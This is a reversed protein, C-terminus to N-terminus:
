RSRPAQLEDFGLGAGSSDNSGMRVTETTHDLPKPRDFAAPRVKTPSETM